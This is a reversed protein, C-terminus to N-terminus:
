PPPTQPLTAVEGGAFLRINANPLWDKNLVKQALDEDTSPAFLKKYAFDAENYEMRCSRARSEPLYGKEILDQFTERDAGYALCLLNYYRQMPAGHADAFATLSVTVRPNRLYIAYSYAAGLIFRHAQDKGLLLMMYAAFKDAADEAQGLLPVDLIDFLAHGMEHALVYGFQGIVADAQTIGQPTTKDPMSKIIDVLYEYCITVTGNTYWANSMGCSRAKITVDEPLKFIGFFEQAKELWQREKILDYVQQQEPSTPPYAEIKIRQPRVDHAPSAGSAGIQTRCAPTLLIGQSALCQAIRWGGEPLPSCVRKIDDWCVDAIQGIRDLAQGLNRSAEFLTYDCQHSIQDEHAQICLMLRDDGPTVTSCYKKIDDGCAARIKGAGAAIRTELQTQARVAGCFAALATTIAFATAIILRLRIEGAMMTEWLWDLQV